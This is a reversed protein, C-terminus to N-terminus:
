YYFRRICETTKTNADDVSNSFSYKVFHRFLVCFDTVFLQVSPKMEVFFLNPTRIHIAVYDVTNVISRIDCNLM